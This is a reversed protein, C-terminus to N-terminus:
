VALKLRDMFETKQEFSSHVYRNLTIEVGSHGLIESLSKIDFGLRVCNSAFMHRLAHFHVSPLNGNKLITTFRYQMTRPEIPKAKGSLVFQEPDGQFKRLFEILCEPIPISRKSTESKPETLILRTKTSGGKVQIRQLTKSVTLIRKELDIDAWKLACLEGIRLGTMKALAIGLTTLNQDTMVIQMLRKEEAETLLRIETKEKKPMVLWEMPNFIRYTRVAYKFVSKMLVLIDSIYRNSLGSDQKKRIFQYINSQKIDTIDDNAFVPLIHKEAKLVYNALTSDKVRISISQFWEDFVESFTKCVAVTEVLRERYDTMKTIVDDPTKGFFAKYQRKGGIRGVTIRGEFRGDKRQYVNTIM